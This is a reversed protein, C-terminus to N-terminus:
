QPILVKVAVIVVLIFAAQSIIGLMLKGEDRLRRSTHIWQHFRYLAALPEHPWKKYVVQLPDPLIGGIAGALIAPLWLINAFVAISILLGAGADLTFDAMDRLFAQDLHFSGEEKPNISASYIPYDYHPIADVVFHSAFGVCFATVPHTPIATALAAGVIAHTELTM